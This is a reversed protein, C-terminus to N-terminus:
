INMIIAFLLLKYTLVNSKLLLHHNIMFDIIIIVYILYSLNKM